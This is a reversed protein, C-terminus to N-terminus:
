EQSPQIDKIKLSINEKERFWDLEIAYCINFSSMKNLEDVKDGFGFAIAKHIFNSSDTVSFQLHKQGVVRAQGALKVNKSVFVPTNNEPGFPGFRSLNQCFQLKIRDLSLEYDYEIAPILLEEPISNSVYQEFRERLEDIKDLPLTLGAAASHGGWQTLVGDCEKIANYLDYGAVSRASGVAMGNSKTLLITPRYYKEILRSAVIGIVGKHWNENFLVTTKSEEFGQEKIMKLAATTIDKDFNQRTANKANIDSAIEFASNCDNEILMKVSLSGSGIRGAANIRPGLKFILDNIEIKSKCGASKLLAQIGPRPRENIQILGLYTMVRNEGTMHVIDSAISIAVLDLLSYVEIDSILETSLAQCLKFGIGCGSLEKYPYACGPQKPNLIAAADPLNDGPTHHDCIILDIGKQRAYLTHDLSKIGCDLAIILRADRAQAEDIGVFSIGYGEKFRDPIYYSINKYFSSLYIYVLAVATTGDVDYDGFVIIHENKRIASIIRDVAKQMNLMQFPSHLQSLDPYFYQKADELNSINRQAMLGLMLDSTSIQERLKNIIDDGPQPRHV